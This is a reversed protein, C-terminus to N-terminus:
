VPSDNAGKPRVPGRALGQDRADSRKLPGPGGVVALRVSSVSRTEGCDESCEASSPM